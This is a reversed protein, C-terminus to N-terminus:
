KSARQGSANYQPNANLPNFRPMEWRRSWRCACAVVLSYDQGTRWATNATELTPFLGKVCLLRKGLRTCLAYQGAIEKARKASMQFAAPAVVSGGPPTARRFHHDWEWRIAAAFATEALAKAKEEIAAPTNGLTETVYQVPLLVDDTTGKLASHRFRFLHWKPGGRAYHCTGTTSDPYTVTCDHEKRLPLSRGNSAGPSAGLRLTEPTVAHKGDPDLQRILTALDENSLTLYRPYRDTATSTRQASSSTRV